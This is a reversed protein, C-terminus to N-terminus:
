ATSKYNGFFTATADLQSNGATAWNNFFFESVKLAPTTATSWSGGTVLPTSEEQASAVGVTMLLAACLTIIRKM